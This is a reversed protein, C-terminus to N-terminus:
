FVYGGVATDLSMQGTGPPPRTAPPPGCSWHRQLIDLGDPHGLDPESLYLVIKDTKYRIKKRVTLAGEAADDVHINPM